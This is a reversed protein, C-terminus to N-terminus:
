LAPLALRGGDELTLQALGDAVDIARVRIGRGDEFMVLDTAMARTAVCAATLLIPALRRM